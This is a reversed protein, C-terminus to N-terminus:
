VALELYIKETICPLLPASYNCLLMLCTYLTQYAQKKELAMANWVDDGEVSSWFRDKNRRIYWNSLVELFDDIANCALPTNYDDMSKKIKQCTENIKTLIYIDMVNKIPTFDTLFLKDKKGDLNWIKDAEMYTKLFTFANWFGALTTHATEAIGAGKADMNLENGRMVSAKAMYFRMADSGYTDFMLMPDPYNKLRKSLKQSKEDLIVGHCICNLFPPRDFLATSLVMLTYFWGRTQAMYEVIFDAPFHTKFWEQNQEATRIVKGNEKFDFPYHVQAYPMSGSEFWCDFVDQVRVMQSKGTPDNPNQRVLTDIFPRHLDTVKVGFDAEMEAISGYVDTRPYLPDTSQWIPIPCGWFRNRSISWDRANDLWKGFIGDKVNEPIWNIQQNLEVMRDKFKTVEVYWSGVAKNILPTDTRWCHPYNHLYQETKLWNDTSKLYKIVEDETQFVQIGAVDFSMEKDGLKYDIKSIEGTFKGGNDVPCVVKIGNKKCVLHDDEGFGPACHVIGTGDETTVFDGALIQFANNSDAFYPFLPKYKLGVLDRGKFSFDGSM